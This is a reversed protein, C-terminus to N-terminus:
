PVIKQNPSHHKHFVHTKLNSSTKARYSCYSCAFPEEGTHTRIHQSLNGKVTARYPCYPCAFPKEGTHIRIHRELDNSYGFSKSCFQCCFQGRSRGNDTQEETGSSTVQQHRTALSKLMQSARTQNGSYGEFPMGLLSRDGEWMSKGQLGSAGPLAQAVLDEMTQPQNTPRIGQPNFGTGVTEGSLSGGSHDGHQLSYNLSPDPDKSQISEKTEEAESYDEQPEEKVLPDDMVLEHQTTSALENSSNTPGPTTNIDTQSTCGSERNAPHPVEPSSETVTANSLQTEPSPPVPGPSSSSSARLPDRTRPPVRFPERYSAPSRSIPDRGGKDGSTHGIRQSVPSVEEPRRRKAEPGDNVWPISRKGDHSSEPESPAEDPVALGKIRLCEAAKILGSLDSQLVNVEGVYMYNLLAELDEHRIDKLVIIPHKCSTREFMQEFYDSCTSLVLKHVPYFKGDCAVTVDCYSEKRRVTSLVHLFTSRHNNWKLSLLGGDM